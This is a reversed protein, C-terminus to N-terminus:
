RWNGKTVAEAGLGTFHSRRRKRRGGWLYILTKECCAGGVPMWSEMETPNAKQKDQRLFPRGRRLFPPLGATEGEAIMGLLM